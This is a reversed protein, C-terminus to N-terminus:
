FSNKYNIIFLQYDLSYLKRELLIIDPRKCVKRETRKKAFLQKTPVSYEVILYLNSYKQSLNMLEYNHKGRLAIVHVLDEAKLVPRIVIDCLGEVYKLHLRPDLGDHPPTEARVFLTFFDGLDLASVDPDVLAGPPKHDFLILDIEGGTFKIHEEKKHRIGSLYEGPIIKKHGEPACIIRSIGTGNIYM